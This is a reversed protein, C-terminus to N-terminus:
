SAIIVIMGALVLVGGCIVWSRAPRPGDEPWEPLLSSFLGSALLVVVGVLAIVLGMVGWDSRTELLQMVSGVCFAAISISALYTTRRSPRGLTFLVNLCAALLFLIGLVVVFFPPTGWAEAGFM